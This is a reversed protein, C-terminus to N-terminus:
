ESKFHSAIDNTVDIPHSFILKNEYRIVRLGLTLLHDTREADYQAQMADNHVEGDLEIILKESPCYFDVIYNGISHQRRFKRGQLKGNKLMAWLAAEAPTLSNRLDKRRDKLYNVNHVRETRMAPILRNFTPIKLQVQM